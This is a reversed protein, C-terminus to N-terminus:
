LTPDASISLTGAATIARDAPRYMDEVVAGPLVFEGPTVARVIYAATYNERGDSSLSAIFRDDRAETVDFPSIQGMWKFAGESGGNDRSSAGSDPTLITEIEFGAPLLDAIVTTRSKNSTSNFKLVTVFQEGQKASALKAPEGKMTFVAKTLKFGDAMAPPAVKPAGSVTVTAWIPKSAKNTFSPADTLDSGYMHASPRKQSGTLKVGKARIDADETLQMLSKIALIVYAKEQTHLYKAEKLEDALGEAYDVTVADGDAEASAAIIGALDRLPTQYYNRDQDYGIGKNAAAFAIQARSTDGMMSLAAGLYAHALPSDIEKRKNDYLYRMESLNGKGAKALVYHAYAAPEVLHSEDRNRRDFRYFDYELPSRSNLRTIQRMATYARNMVDDAVYLEEARARQLFDTAYVGLWPTANRDGARWLGFAGDIGQRSALREIAEQLGQRRDAETQGAIGGLAEAYLLPMATSVTQETCGYPYKALSAVYPAPDIGALRSFSVTVDTSNPYLGDIVSQNVSLVEGAQLKTTEARTLPFYPTRVQIDYESSVGYKAPGRVGMTLKALGTNTASLAIKGERREGKALTFGASGESSVRGSSTLAVDYDGAEGEVNQLSVTAFAKDGPALFRPLGILAPVKDRVTVPKSASGVSKKTWATAMLRLEGNFDPIDLVITAKGNKVQVPGEFLAITKTPVVTLGEGGLSDGGSNALAPAGMNPNLIRAYDDRIDVNLSKKGFFFGDASPSKYKTIQLIGEDVAAFNMWVADGRKANKVDVTFAQEQRPRIVDPTEISLGLTQDFRDLAIYSIGVARRPVPRNAADRPTYLTLMAYVSEGWAEDFPLSIDSGGEPLTVSKIMQIEDNAIVLEAEGAYPANVSLKFTDGVKAPAEPAGMRIQDPADSQSAKGWGVAFRYGATTGDDATVELRYDGYGLRQKWETPASASTKLTGALMPVDRIDRRYRWRGRERYWHYNWDEEVLAWKIDNAIPKGLHNVSVIDFSVPKGKPARSGDFKPKLGLYADQTRVPVRISDRVYRGGPEAAGATIEARLPYQSSISERKMDLGLKLRGSGDTVGTGIEVYREEFSQDAPGFQYGKYDAFPNPDIRIRAEAEGELAAGPAGYLFQADITIDRIERPRIPASDTEIGLRLKQPVFDEVSFEIVKVSDVGDLKIKASWMGRPASAPIDYDMVLAGSYKSIDAAPIRKTFMEVGNPKRVTITAPHDTVALAKSDRLMATLHVTEGPRYVGRETFGYIDVPGSVRRGSIDYESLDLPARSLDLIAYDGESEGSSPSYAMVMKASSSGEGGLAPGAFKARGSSDTTTEALVKNNYAILKLEIGAQLKATDISRVSVTLGETGRYSTLALDTSIIWRWARAIQYEEEEHKREATVVYAGPALDTILDAVPIVTTIQKNRKSKVPVDGQWIIDRVNTAADEYEYSYSGELTAQGSQPDRRAVMRDNVRAIEVTLVDVNITEIALGQANLRPLIIGEGAFAVYAPKDGFAVLVNAEQALKLGEAGPLGKRLTIDYEKDFALGGVCLQRGVIDTSIQTIPSIKVYDRIKVSDAADLNQSFAMCVRPSASDTDTEWGTFDLVRPAKPADGEDINVVNTDAEQSVVQVDVDSTAVNTEVTETKSSEGSKCGPVAALGVIFLSLLFFISYRKM